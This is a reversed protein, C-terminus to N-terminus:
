RTTAPLSNSFIRGMVTLPGAAITVQKLGWSELRRLIGDRRKQISAGHDLSVTRAFRRLLCDVSGPTVAKVCRHTLAPEWVTWRRGHAARRRTYSPRMLVGGLLEGAIGLLAGRHDVTCPWSRPRQVTCRAYAGYYRAVAGRGLAAREAYRAPMAPSQWRGAVQLAPLDVGHVTLDQAM